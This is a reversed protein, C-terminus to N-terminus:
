RKGKIEESLRSYFGGLSGNTMLVVVDDPKVIKRLIVPIQQYDEAVHIKGGSDRLDKQLKEISLQEKVPIREPRYLPALLTIEAKALAQALETQFINRVTTNTRPEFVAILRRRPHKIRIATLTEAIATYHHAFDDYFPAGNFYGWFDLRRKVNLFSSLGHQIQDNTLGIEHGILIAALSNYIQFEGFLPISFNGFIKEQHRVSFKMGTESTEVNEFSWDNDPNKGFRQVRSYVPSLVERVNPHDGNAVILGNGPILRILKRFEDQIQKLNQYIDSHDFEINNIVLYHPFYHLFKPRKDFFATDYEDGEIVFYESNGLGVSANFNKSFGGILFTPSLNADHLLWSLLATTTTKGHTGSIVISKKHRIFQDHITEGMSVFPLRRNLIAEIEPNGRSLANGIIVKDFPIDLNRLRYGERVPINHQRLFDSMPPYVNEDSGWVRHGKQKLLVALSAMATGCIGLFYYRM